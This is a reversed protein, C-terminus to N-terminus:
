FGVHDSATKIWLSATLILIRNSCNWRKPYLATYDASFWGVNRLFMYSRDEADFSLDLLFGVHFLYCAVQEAQENRAEFISAIHEVLFETAKLPCRETIDWFVSNNVVV